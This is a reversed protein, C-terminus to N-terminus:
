AGVPVRAAERLHAVARDALDEANGRELAYDAYCTYIDLGGLRESTIVFFSAGFMVSSVAMTVRELTFPGYDEVLGSEGATTMALGDIRRQHTITPWLEKRYVEWDFLKMISAAEQDKAVTTILGFSVDRAISWFDGSIDHRTRLLDIYCGYTSSPFPPKCLRRLDITSLTTMEGLGYKDRIALLYAASMAGHLTTRKQKVCEKLAATAAPDVRREIHRSIQKGGKVKQPPLRLAPQYGKTGSDSRKPMGFELPPPLEAATSPLPMAEAAAPDALYAMFDRSAMNTAQADAIAHDATLFFRCAPADPGERVLLARLRPNRGKQLPKGLERDLVRRWAEPDPDTVVELPIPGTGELDFWPQRYAFPPLDRFVLEGYRIHARLLAYRRQLWDLARRALDPDLRGRIHLVQVPILGGYGHLYHFLREQEGLRRTAGVRAESRM